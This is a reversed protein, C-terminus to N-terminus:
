DGGTALTNDIIFDDRYPTGADHSLMINVHSVNPDLGRRSALSTNLIENSYDPTMIGLSPNNRILVNPKGFISSSSM